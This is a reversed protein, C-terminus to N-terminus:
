VGVSRMMAMPWAAVGPRGAPLAAATPWAAVGRRPASAVRRRAPFASMLPAIPTQALAANITESWAGAAIMRAHNPLAKRAVLSVVVASALSLAIQGAGTAVQAQLNAPLMGTVAGRVKRAGVQGLVVAGGDKLGQVIGGVIGRTSAFPSNRRVRRVVGPNRRRRRSSRRRRNALVRRAPGLAGPNRRRRRRRAPTASAARRRRRRKAMTAGSLTQRRRKSKARARTRRRKRGRASANPGNILFHM